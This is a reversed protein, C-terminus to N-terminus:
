RSVLLIGKFSRGKQKLSLCMSNSMFTIIISSQKQMKKSSSLYDTPVLLLVHFRSVFTYLLVQEIGSEIERYRV